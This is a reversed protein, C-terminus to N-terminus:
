NRDLAVFTELSGSFKTPTKGPVPDAMAPWTICIRGTTAIRGTSPATLVIDARYRPPPNVITADTGPPGIVEGGDRFFLTQTSTAAGASPVALQFKPSVQSTPPMTKQTAQLDSMIESTLASMVSQEGSAQHSLQALPFLAFIAILCFGAVGIALTVEVLSFAKGASRNM